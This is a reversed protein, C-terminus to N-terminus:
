RYLGRKRIYEAVEPRMYKTVDEGDALARRLETSSIEMERFTLMVVRAGKSRLREATEESAARDEESRCGAVLTAEAMVRRYLHWKEFYLLMDSGMLMYLEYGPYKKKLQRITKMTYSRWGRGELVSVRLGGIGAFERRAMNVRDRFPTRVRGKFPSLGAPIVLTLDPSIEEVAAELLRRHGEHPPDFSGGYFLLKESAM